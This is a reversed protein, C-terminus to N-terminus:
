EGLVSDAFVELPNALSAFGAMFLSVWPRRKKLGDGNAGSFHPSHGYKEFDFDRSPGRAIWGMM